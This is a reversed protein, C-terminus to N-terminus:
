ALRSSQWLLWQGDESYTFGLEVLWGFVLSRGPELAHLLCCEVEDLQGTQPCRDLAQLLTATQEGYFSFPTVWRCPFAALYDLTAVLPANPAPAARLRLPRPRGAMAQDLGWLILRTLTNATLEHRMAYGNLLERGKCVLFTPPSSLAPSFGRRELEGPRLGLADGPAGRRAFGLNQTVGEQHASPPRRPDLAEARALPSLGPKLGADLTRAEPM